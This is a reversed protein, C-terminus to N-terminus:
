AACYRQVEALIRDPNLPKPLVLTAGMPAKNPASTTVIVPTSVFPPLAKFSAFFDWGNMGPMLLDLLVVCVHEISAALALAEGGDRAGVVDFGALELVSCTLERMDKDDEVVLVTHKV